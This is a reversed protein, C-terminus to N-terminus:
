LYVAGGRSHLGDFLVTTEPVAYQGLSFKLILDSAISGTISATTPLETFQHQFLHSTTAIRPPLSDISEGNQDYFSAGHTLKNFISTHLVQLLQENTQNPDTNGSSRHTSLNLHVTLDRSKNSDVMATNFEDQASSTVISMPHLQLATTLNSSMSYLDPAIAIQTKTIATSTQPFRHSTLQFEYLAMAGCYFDILHNKVGEYFLDQINKTVERIRRKAVPTDLHKSLTASTYSNTFSYFLPLNLIYQTTLLDWLSRPQPPALTADINSSEILETKDLDTKTHHAFITQYDVPSFNFATLAENVRVERCNHLYYSVPDDVQLVHKLNTLYHELSSYWNSSASSAPSAFVAERQATYTKIVYNLYILFLGCDLEFQHSYLKKVQNYLESSAPMDPISPNIPLCGFAKHVGDENNLSASLGGFHHVISDFELHYHALFPDLQNQTATREDESIGIAQNIPFNLVFLRMATILLWFPHNYDGYLVHQDTHTLDNNQSWDIGVASHYLQIQDFLPALNFFTENVNETLQFRLEKEQTPVVASVGPQAILPNNYVTTFDSLAYKYEPVATIMRVGKIAETYSDEDYWKKSKVFQEFSKTGAADITGLMGKTDTGANRWQMFHRILILNFPVKSRKAKLDIYRSGSKDAPVAEDLYDFQQDLALATLGTFRQLQYRNLYLNTAGAHLKFHTEIVTRQPYTVKVLSLTSYSGVTMLPINFTSTFTSLITHLTTPIRIPDVLVLTYDFLSTTQITAQAQQPQLHPPLGPISLAPAPAPPLSANFLSLCQPYHEAVFLQLNSHYQEPTLVQEMDNTKSPGLHSLQYLTNFLLRLLHDSITETVAVGTCSTNLEGLSGVLCQAVPRGLDMKTLFFNNSVNYQTVVSDDVITFSEVSPLIVGKLAETITVSSGLALINTHRLRRQGHSGWLRVQRDFLIQERSVEEPKGLTSHQASM